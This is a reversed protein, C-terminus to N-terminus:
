DYRHGPSSQRHRHPGPSRHDHGEKAIGAGKDVANAADARGEDALALIHVMDRVRDIGTCVKNNGLCASRLRSWRRIARKV